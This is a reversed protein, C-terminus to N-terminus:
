YSCTGNGEYRLRSARQGPEKEELKQEATAAPRLALSAPPPMRRRPHERAFQVQRFVAALSGRDRRRARSDRRAEDAHQRFDRLTLVGLLTYRARRPNQGRRRDRIQRAARKG